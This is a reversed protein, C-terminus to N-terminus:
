RGKFVPARKENFAKIAERTDDSAARSLAENLSNAAEPRNLTVRAVGGDLAYKIATYDPM